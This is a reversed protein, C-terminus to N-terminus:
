GVEIARTSRAPNSNITVRSQFPFNLFSFTHDKTQRIPSVIFSQLLLHMIQCHLSLTYFSRKRKPM